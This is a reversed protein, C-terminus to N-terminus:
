WAEDVFCTTCWESTWPVVVPFGMRIGNMMQGETGKMVEICTWRGWAGM